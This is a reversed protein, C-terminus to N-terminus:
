SQPLCPSIKHNAIPALRVFAGIVVCIIKDSGFAPLTCPNSAVVASLPRLACPITSLKFLCNIRVRPAFREHAFIADCLCQRVECRSTRENQACSLVQDCIITAACSKRSGAEATKQRALEANMRRGAKLVERSSGFSLRRVRIREGRENQACSLVQVEM